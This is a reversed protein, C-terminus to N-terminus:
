RRKPIEVLCDSCIASREKTKPDKEFKYYGQRLDKKCKSCKGDQKKMLNKRDFDALKIDRLKKSKLASIYNSAEM